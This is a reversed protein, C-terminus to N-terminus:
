YYNNQELVSYKLLVLILQILDKPLRGLWCRKKGIRKKKQKRNSKNLDVNKSVNNKDNNKYFAIWIIRQIKWDLKRCLNYVTYQREQFVIM